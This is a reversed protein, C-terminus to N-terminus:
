KETNVKSDLYDSVGARVARMLGEPTIYPNKYIRKRITEPSRNLTEAVEFIAEEQTKGKHLQWAVYMITFYDEEPAKARGRKKSLNFAKQPIEGAQISRLAVAFWEAAAEPLPESNEIREAIFGCLRKSFEVEGDESKAILVKVWDNTSDETAM